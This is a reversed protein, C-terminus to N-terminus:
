QWLTDVSNCNVFIYFYEFVNYSNRGLSIVLTDLNPVVVPMSEAQVSYVIARLSKLPLVDTRSM